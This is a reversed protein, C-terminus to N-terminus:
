DNDSFSEIREKLNQKVNSVKGKLKKLKLSLFISFAGLATFVLGILISVFSGVILPNWLLVLSLIFGIVGLSLLTKWHTEEGYNKLDISHSVASVSRFLLTFGVFLSLTTFTIEPHNFIIIGVLMTLVGIMLTWGWNDIEDRNRLSFVIESLGSVVFVLSFLSSLTSFSDAPSFIFFLGLIVFFLGVLLPIYWNKVSSKVTKITSM